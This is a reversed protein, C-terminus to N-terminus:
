LALDQKGLIGSKGLVTHGLSHRQWHTEDPNLLKYLMVLDKCGGSWKEREM